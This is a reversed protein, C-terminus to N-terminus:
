IAHLLSPEDDREANTSVEHCRAGLHEFQSFFDPFSCNVDRYGDLRNPRHSRLSAIFLSMFIRHDGWSTCREM